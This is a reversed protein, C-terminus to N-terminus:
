SNTAVLDFKLTGIRLDHVADSLKIKISSGKRIHKGDIRCDAGASGIFIIRDEDFSISFGVKGGHWMAYFEWPHLHAASKLQEYFNFWARKNSRDVYCAYNFDKQFGDEKGLISVKPM